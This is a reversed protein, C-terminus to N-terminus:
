KILVKESKVTGDSYKVTRVFIGVAPNVVSRGLLDTYCEGVVDGHVEGNVTGVGSELVLASKAANVIKGTKGDIVMAVVFLSEAMNIFSKIEDTIPFAYSNEITEGVTTNEPLIGKEGFLDNSAIVVENYHFDNILEPWKSLLELETGAVKAAEEPEAYYNHQEWISEKSHLGNACLVYSLRYDANNEEIVFSVSSNAELTTMEDNGWKVSVSVAAPSFAKRAEEWAKEIGFPEKAYGYYPDIVSGRDITAAPWGNIQKPYEAEPIIAMPDKRHYVLAIFDDGHLKNMKDIAFWGRTCYGCTTYTYEEMVPIHVPISNVTFLKASVTRDKSSNKKGNVKDITVEIDYEGIEEPLEFSLIASSTNFFDNKIPSLLKETASKTVDGIKYSYGIENVAEVGCNLIEISATGTEGAKGYVTGMSKLEVSNEPFDGDITVSIVASANLNNIGYNRWKKVTQSTHVYLGNENVSSSLLLPTKTYENLEDITFSYGVYVGEETITYPSSLEAKMNGNRMLVVPVSVIDPVNINNEVKLEKSLWLSTSSVGSTPYISAKISTIQKGVLAPDVIRMAVDYTENAKKTGWISYDENAYTYTITAGFSVSVMSFVLILTTIAKKLM